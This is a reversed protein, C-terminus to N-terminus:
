RSLELWRLSAPTRRNKLSNESGPCPNMKTRGALKGRRKGQNFYIKIALSWAAGGAM